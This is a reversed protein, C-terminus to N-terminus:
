SRWTPPATYTKRRPTYAGLWPQMDLARRPAQDFREVCRNARRARVRSVGHACRRKSLGRASCASSAHQASLPLPQAREIGRKGIKQPAFNGVRRRQQDEGGGEGAVLEPATVGAEIQRRRQLCRSEGQRQRGFPLLPLARSSASSGGGSGASTSAPKLRALPLLRERLRQQDTGAGAVRRQHADARAEIQAAVPLVLLVHARAM